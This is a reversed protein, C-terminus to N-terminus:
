VDRRRLFAYRENTPSNSETEPEQQAEAEREKAKALAREARELVTLEKAKEEGM